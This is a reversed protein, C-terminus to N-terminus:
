EAVSHLIAREVESVHDPDTVKRGRRDRVYFADIVDDGAGSVTASRIDLDLEALARTIRYLVGIRNGTRVDIVTADPSADNDFSVTATRPREPAAGRGYLQAREAVRANIALRGDLAREIQGSVRPWPTDQRVPDRVHFQSLARGSDTSFAAASLVDLGHLALVGAIRAFVGPRDYTVVHVVDGDVEIHQEGDRLWNWQLQTPFPEIDLTEVDKGTLLHDVRAVLVRVLRAVRDEWLGVATARIDAETFAALRMLRDHSRVAEAVRSITAPHSLDRRTATEALLHQHAVLWGIEGAGDPGFGLRAALSGADVGLEHILCAVAVLERGPVDSSLGAVGVGAELLHRDITFRHSRDRHRHARISPWEPFLAQWVGREDLSEIVAISPPGALLLDVLLGRAEGPWPVPMPEGIAALHELSRREIRRGTSAATAAVRLPFAPDRETAMSTVVLVEDGDIATGQPLVRGNPRRGNRGVKRRPAVQQWTLDSTWAITRAASALRLRLVDADDDGLAKAVAGDVSTELV